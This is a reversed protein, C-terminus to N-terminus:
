SSGFFYYKASYKVTIDPTGPTCTAPAVGLRTDLRYVATALGGSVSSLQLWPVDQAGTPANVAADKKAVVFANANKQSATFDWKPQLGATGNIFFHKGLLPAGKPAGSKLVTDQITDFAPTGSLCAIDYINAVAGTSTYTGAASCTYNQTGLGVSVFSPAGSATALGAFNPVTLNAISCCG